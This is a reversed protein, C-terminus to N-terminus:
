VRFFHGSGEDRHRHTTWMLGTCFYYRTYRLYIGCCYVCLVPSIYKESGSVNWTVDWPVNWARSSWYVSWHYKNGNLESRNLGAIYLLAIDFSKSMDFIAATSYQKRKCMPHRLDRCIIIFEKPISCLCIIQIYSMTRTMEDRVPLIATKSHVRGDRAKSECQM